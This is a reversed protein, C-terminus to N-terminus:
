WGAVFFALVSGFGFGMSARRRMIHAAADAAEAALAPWPWQPRRRPRGAEHPHAPRSPRGRLLKSYSPRRPIILENALSHTSRSPRDGRWRGCLRHFFRRDTGGWTGKPGEQQWMSGM